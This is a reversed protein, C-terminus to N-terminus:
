EEKWPDHSLFTEAMLDVNGPPFQLAEDNDISLIFGGAPVAWNELLQRAEDQIRERDTFPLTKQIDCHSEFCIRGAFNTGIERIGNVRPQQLNLVDVGLEIFDDILANIYGDSHLWVHWGAAHVADFVVKYRPKFFARWLEPSMMLAQQTGLDETFWFGHIQRQFRHAINEIIALNFAVIRDGLMEIKDRATLLDVLTNEFGRLAQLREFLLMFIGSHVYREEAEALKEDMGQYFAADDPDPWAYDDLASWEALPHGKVQGMNTQGSREWLCGWEDYSERTNLGGSGIFNWNVNVVDSEILGFRESHYPGGKVPLREPDDFEIARKVVQYPTQSM